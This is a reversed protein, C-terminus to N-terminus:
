ASPLLVERVQELIFDIDEKKIILTPACRIV